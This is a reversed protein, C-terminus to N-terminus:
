GAGGPRRHCRLARVSAAQHGDGAKASIATTARMWALSLDLDFLVLTNESSETLTQVGSGRASTFM